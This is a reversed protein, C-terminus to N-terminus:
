KEVELALSSRQRLDQLGRALLMKVAGESKGLTRAIELIKLGGFYHLTLAEAREASIQKLARHICELNMRQAAAQDTLTGHHLNQIVAELPMEPKNSRFFMKQKRVAIGMIWAAFSGRGRFTKIGELAAMFTQSTLDEADKLNGTHAIHYRYVRTVHKRYLESFAEIDVRAQFALQTDENPIKPIPISMPTSM